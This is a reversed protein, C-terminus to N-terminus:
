SGMAVPKNDVGTIAVDWNVDNGFWFHSKKGGSIGSWFSVVVVDTGREGAVGAPTLDSM